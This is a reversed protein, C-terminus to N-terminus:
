LTRLKDVSLPYSSEELPKVFVHDGYKLLMEVKDENHQFYFWTSWWTLEKTKIWELIERKLNDRDKDYFPSLKRITARNILFIQMDMLYTSEIFKENM